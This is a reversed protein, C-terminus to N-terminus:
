DETDGLSAAKVWMIEVSGGEVGTSGCSRLAPLLQQSLSRTGNAGQLHGERRKGSCTGPFMQSHAFGLASCSHSGPGPAAAAWAGHLLVWMTLARSICGSDEAAAEM